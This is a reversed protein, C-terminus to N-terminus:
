LRRTRSRAGTGRDCGPIPTISGSNPDKDMDKLSWAVFQKSLTTANVKWVAPTYKGTSFCRFAWNALARQYMALMLTTKGTGAPGVCLYCSFEYKTVTEVLQELTMAKREYDGNFTGFNSRYNPLLAPLEVRRYDTPVIAPNLWQTYYLRVLQCTCPRARTVRIGTVKGVYQHDVTRDGFCHPCERIGLGVETRDLETWKEPTYTQEIFETELLLYQHAEKPIPTVKFKQVIAQYQLDPSWRFEPIDEVKPVMAALLESVPIVPLSPSSAPAQPDAKSMIENEANM